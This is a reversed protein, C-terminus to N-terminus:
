ASSSPATAARFPRRTASAPTTSWCRSPWGRARSTAALTAAGDPAALDGAIVTATAGTESALEAAVAALAGADRATLILDHGAHAFVRALEVGIGSSAGTVLAIPKGM